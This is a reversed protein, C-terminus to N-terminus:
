GVPWLHLWLLVTHLAHLIQIKLLLLLLLEVLGDSEGLLLIDKVRVCLLLRHLLKFFLGLLQHQILISTCILALGDLIGIAVWVQNSPCM